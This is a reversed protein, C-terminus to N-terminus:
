DFHAECVEDGICTEGTHQLYLQWVSKCQGPYDEIIPRLCSAVNSPIHNNVAEEAEKGGEGKGSREQHSCNPGHQHPPNLGWRM